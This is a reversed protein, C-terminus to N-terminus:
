QREPGALSLAILTQAVSSYAHLRFFLGRELALVKHLTVSTLFIQEVLITDAAGGTGTSLKTVQLVPSDVPVTTKEWWEDYM